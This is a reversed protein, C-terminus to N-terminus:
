PLPADIYGGSYLFISLPHHVRGAWAQENHPADLELWHYLNDDWTYGIGALTDVFHRTACYSDSDNPDDVPFGDNNGDTCGDGGDNGGSDAYVVFPQVGAASYLEEMLPNGLTVRGWYLSGSLSGAFDFADPYLRAINLSCLGGMSSGMVGDFGTTGYVAEIHPRIVEQVMQAYRTGKSVILGIDELQDNVHTYEEIRETTNDIGVILVPEGVTDVANQMHWGGWIANPDFLNQGDQMYLVPWPGQGAPVYVRIDRPLLDEYATLGPWRDLRHTDAPPRVYSFEGNEDYEYSRAWPDAMWTDGDVFKYRSGEPSPVAIEICSVSGYRTMAAPTWANVDGALSWTGDNWWHCFIFSDMSTAVPWGGSWSVTHFVNEPSREGAMMARVLYEDTAASDTDIEPEPEPEPELEQEPEPEPEAEIEPEPDPEPELEPETEAEAEPEDAELDGDINDPDADDVTDVIDAVEPEPEAEEEPLIDAEPLIEADGDVVAEQETEEEPEAEPETEDIDGDETETLETEAPDDDILDNESVTDQETEVPIDTEPEVDMTDTDGDAPLDEDLEPLGDASDTDADDTDMRDVDATDGDPMPTIDGGGSSCSVFVVIMCLSAFLRKM